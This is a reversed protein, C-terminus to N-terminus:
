MEGYGTAIAMADIVRRAHAYGGVGVNAALDVPKAPPSALPWPSCGPTAAPYGTRRPRVPCPRGTAYGRPRSPAATTGSDFPEVDVLESFRRRNLLETYTLLHVAAQTTPSGTSRPAPLSCSGCSTLATSPAPSLLRLRHVQGAQLVHYRDTMRVLVM